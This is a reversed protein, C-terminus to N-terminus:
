FSFLDYNKLTKRRWLHVKKLWFSKYICETAGELSKLTLQLVNPDVTYREIASILTVLPQDFNAPLTCVILSWIFVCIKSIKFTKCILRWRRGELSQFSTVYRNNWLAFTRPRILSYYKLMMNFPTNGRGPIRGQQSKERVKNSSVGSM